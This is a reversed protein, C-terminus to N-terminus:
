GAQAAIAFMWVLIEVVLLVLALQFAERLRRVIKGNKHWDDKIRLALARHMGSM